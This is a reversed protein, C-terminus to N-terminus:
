SPHDYPASYGSVSNSAEIETDPVPPSKGLMISGQSAPSHSLCQVTDLSQCARKIRSLTSTSGEPVYESSDNPGVSGVQDKRSNM